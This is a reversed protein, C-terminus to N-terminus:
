DKGTMIPEILSEKQWPAFDTVGRIDCRFKAKYHSTLDQIEYGAEIFARTFEVQTMAIEMCNTSNERYPIRGYIEAIKELAAQKAIGYSIGGHREFPSNTQDLILGCLYGCNHKSKILHTMIKDFNDKVFVYDDEMFIYYDFQNTFQAYAHSFCGYSLGSNERDIIVVPTQRIERISRLHEIKSINQHHPIVITIQSLNHELKELSRIHDIIYPYDTRDNRRNGTWANVVYNIRPM